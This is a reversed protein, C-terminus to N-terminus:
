YDLCKTLTGNTYNIVSPAKKFLKKIYTIDEDTLSITEGENDTRTFVVNGVIVDYPKGQYVMVISPELDDRFKGEENCWMDISHKDLASVPIHEFFGDVSDRLFEYSSDYDVVKLKKGDYIMGKAM